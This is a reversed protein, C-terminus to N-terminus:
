ELSLIRARNMKLSIFVVGKKDIDPASYIEAKGLEKLEKQCAAFAKQSRKFSDYLILLLM